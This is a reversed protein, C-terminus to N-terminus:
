LQIEVASLLILSVYKCCLYVSILSMTKNACKSAIVTTRTSRSIGIRTLYGFFFEVAPTILNKFERMVVATTIPSKERQKKKMAINKEGDNQHQQQEKEEKENNNIM